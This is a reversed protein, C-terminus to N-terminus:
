NNKNLIERVIESYHRVEKDLVDNHHGKGHYSYFKKDTIPEWEKYLGPRVSESSIYHINSAITEVECIKNLFRFYKEVNQLAEERFFNFKEEALGINKQYNINRTIEAEDVYNCIGAKETDILILDTVNIGKKQLGKAVQYAIRGGVCYGLLVVSNKLKSTSIEEIYKSILDTDELYNFSHIKYENLEKSLNNYTLGFGLIPPFCYLDNQAEENFLVKLEKLNNKVNKTILQAMSYVTVNGTIHSIKIDTNFEKNIRSLLEILKLSHGGVFYFNDNIEINRRSFLEEWIELVRIVTENYNENNKQPKREFSEFNTLYKKDVKGNSLKPITDLFAIENPIMYLPLKKELYEVLDEMSTHGKTVVYAKIVKENSKKSVLVAAEEIGKNSLLASQIEGLEIRFGRIKVQDDKRGLFEINGNPLWRALDGTRYLKRGKIIPNDIFSSNTLNSKNLYGRAVGIGSVCLEGPIGTPALKSDDNLIYIINNEIPKGIPISKNKLYYDKKPNISYHSIYVTTETPGYLNELNVNKITEFFNKIINKTLEEGAAFVYKLSKLSINSEKVEKILVDLMSPIFNIHTIKDAEIKKLIQLPDKEDGNNLISLKGGNFIWSFLEPISVDFCFSTKLLFTDEQEFPFRTQLDFLLNMVSQHEVMVGKPNGTSGSTYIVYALDTSKSKVETLDIQKKNTEFIKNDSMNIVKVSLDEVKKIFCDKTLLCHAESDTILYKMRENPYNPDIPLYAAGAKLIGLIGIVMEFSRELMVGVISGRGVNKNILYNALQNSKEELEKYTLYKNKYKLAIRQPTIKAQNTFFGHITEIKPAELLGEEYIKKYNEYEKETMLNLDKIPLYPNKVTSYLIEKFHNGMVEMTQEKFKNTKFTIDLEFINENEEVNLEIDFKANKPKLKIEKFTLGEFNPSSRKYNQFTYFTNFLSNEGTERFYGLKNILQNFPYSQHRFSDLYEFKVEDLTDVFSKDSTLTSKVPITNVFMGLMKQTETDNRNAYATGIVIDSQKTYKFLLVKFATLFFMNLTVKQITALEKIEKSIEESIKFSIQEGESSNISNTNIFDFPLDLLNGEEAFKNLWYKESNEFSKKEFIRKENEVFEKYQLNKKAVEEENYYRAVEEILINVSIGDLIIHHTNIFLIYEFQNLEIIRVEFLPAEALNLLNIYDYLADESISEKVEEFSLRFSNNDIVEQFVEGDKEKFVTRLIENEKVLTNFAQCIKVKDLEGYIKYAIPINYSLDQPNIKNVIYMRKQASSLPYLKKNNECHTKHTERTFPEM